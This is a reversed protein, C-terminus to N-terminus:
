GECPPESDQDADVAAEADAESQAADTESQAADTESQAADTEAQLDDAFMQAEGAERAAAEAQTEGARFELVPADERGLAFHYSRKGEEGPRSKLSWLLARTSQTDTEPDYESAYPILAALAAATALGGLLKGIRKM